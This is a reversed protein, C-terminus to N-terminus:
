RATFYGASSEFVYTAVQIQLKSISNGEYKRNELCGSRDKPRGLERKLGYRPNKELLYLLSPTSSV